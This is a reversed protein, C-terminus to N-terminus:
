SILVKGNGNGNVPESTKGNTPAPTVRPQLFEVSKETPQKRPRRRESKPVGGAKGYEGSDKGYTAAVALLMQESLNRLQKEKDKIQRALDDVNSLAINYEAIQTRLTEIAASYAALTLGNGLELTPSISRLGVERKEANQLAVSARKPRAM